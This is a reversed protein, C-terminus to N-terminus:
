GQPLYELFTSLEPLNFTVLGQSVQRRLDDLPVHSGRCPFSSALTKVHVKKVISFSINGSSVAGGLNMALAVSNIHIPTNKKEEGIGM